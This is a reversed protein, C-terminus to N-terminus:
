RTGCARAWLGAYRHGHAQIGPGVPEPIRASILKTHHIIIYVPNTLWDLTYKM